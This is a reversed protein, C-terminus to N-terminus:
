RWGHADLVQAARDRGIQVYARRASADTFGSFLTGPLAELPRISVIPVARAGDLGFAAKIAGVEEPGWGKQAALADLRALGEQLHTARRLDQYLWEAYVMDLEHALLGLGRFRETPKRFLAPTPAVVLVADLDEGPDPGFASLIPTNNVLGGDTCAGVGPVDVPAFLVPLAASAVAAVFVGELAEASDFSPGPFSRIDRFTTAPEGDINGQRGRLTALVVHLDIPAPDPCACPLVHRRLLALLKEQDSFGRCALMARLSPHLAGFLSAEEEWLHVLDRMAEVERRARVAAAYAAGNLAGSSAAVIRRVAIGHSAIVSLAGAEFAGKVVAGVLVLAVTRPRGAMEGM